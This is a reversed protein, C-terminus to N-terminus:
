NHTRYSFIITKKGYTGDPYKERGLDTVVIPSTRQFITLVEDLKEDIFTARYTFSELRRDSISINVNYWRNLKKVVEAMPENRFVLRGEKWSTYQDVKVQDKNFIGTENVLIGREGPAMIDILKGRVFEDKGFIGISGRELTVETSRDDPYAMVNFATGYARVEINDTVVTFPKDQNKMIDFYAEGSLEVTRNKGKFQSPFSLSSGGNLWGTSGDPLIFSTRAGLPSFIKAQFDAQKEEISGKWNYLTFLALPIFFVAAVRTLFTFLRTKTKIKQHTVAEELRLIHHIRDHLRDEDYGSPHIQEPIDNWRSESYKRLEENAVLDSFWEEIQQKEGKNGRGELYRLLLSTDIKDFQDHGM